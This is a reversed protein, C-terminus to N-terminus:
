MFNGNLTVVEKDTVEYFRTNQRRFSSFLRKYCGMNKNRNGGGRTSNKICTGVPYIGQACAYDRTRACLFDLCM